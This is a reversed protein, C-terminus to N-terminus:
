TWGLFCKLMCVRDIFEVLCLEEITRLILKLEDRRLTILSTPNGYHIGDCYEDCMLENGKFPRIIMHKYSEYSM